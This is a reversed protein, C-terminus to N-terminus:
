YKNKNTHLYSSADSIHLFCRPFRHTPPILSTQEMPSKVKIAEPEQLGYL